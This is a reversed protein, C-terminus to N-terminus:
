EASAIALASEMHAANLATVVYVFRRHDGLEESHTYIHKEGSRWVRAVINAPNDILAQMDMRMPQSRPIRYVVYYRSNSEARDSWTITKGSRIVNFPAPPAASQLHPLPPSLAVHSQFHKRLLEISRNAATYRAGKESSPLLNGYRFFVSGTAEPHLQNYRLQNVIEEPNMWASDREANELHKYNAHGIYLNVNNGRVVSAWWRVLEAYPAAGQDFTWYIQPVVYDILNEQVWQRTDAFVSGSYTRLSGEPTNSGRPDNHRHEWIGFPSIGLQVARGSKKNEATIVARLASILATNNERRWAEIGSPTDPFKGRGHTQFTLRDEHAMGFRVAGAPYPYFYDDFHIADVDYNEIIEQVVDVVHQRVAPRGPDLHLRGNFRYVFDPNKVAFNNDALIGATNMARLLQATEMEALEAATVGPFSLGSYNSATVRYPNLWAHFEIGRQHSQSIMWELPNWPSDPASRLVNNALQLSPKGAQLRALDAELSPLERQKSKFVTDGIKKPASKEWAPPSGQKGTLFHSWPNIQSPYFADLMPSVQFIIANINWSQLVNLMKIFENEFTQRSNHKSIDLNHVTAVWVARFQRKAPVFRTPIRVTENTFRNYLIPVNPDYGHTGDDFRVFRYLERQDPVANNTTSGQQSQSTACTSLLIM